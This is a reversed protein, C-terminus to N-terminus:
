GTSFALTLYYFGETSLEAHLVINMEQEREFFWVRFFIFTISRVNFYIV